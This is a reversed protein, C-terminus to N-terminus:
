PEAWLRHLGECRVSVGHVFVLHPLLEALAPQGLVAGTDEHRQLLPHLMGPLPQYDEAKVRFGEFSPLVMAM